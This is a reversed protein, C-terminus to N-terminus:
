NEKGKRKKGEKIRIIKKTLVDLSNQVREYWFAFTHFLLFPIEWENKDMQYINIILIIVKIQKVLKLKVNKKENECLNIIM